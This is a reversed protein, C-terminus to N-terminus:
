QDQLADAPKTGFSRLVQFSMPPLNEDRYRMDQGLRIKPHM